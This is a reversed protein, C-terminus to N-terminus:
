ITFIAIRILSLPVIRWTLDHILFTEMYLYVALVHSTLAHIFIFGFLYFHKGDKKGTEM